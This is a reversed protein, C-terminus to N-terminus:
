ISRHTLRPSLYCIDSICSARTSDLEELDGSSSGDTKPLLAGPKGILLVVLKDRARTPAVYLLSREWQLAGQREGGSIFGGCLIPSDYEGSRALSECVDAIEPDQGIHRGDGAVEAPDVLVVNDLAISFSALTGRVVDFLDLVHVIQRDSTQEVSPVLWGEDSVKVISGPAINFPRDVESEACAVSTAIVTM